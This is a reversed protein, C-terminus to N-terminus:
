KKTEVSKSPPPLPAQGLDGIVKELDADAQYMWCKVRDVWIVMQVIAQSIDLNDQKLRSVVWAPLQVVDDQSVPDVVAAQGRVLLEYVCDIYEYRKLNLAAAIEGLMTKGDLKEFVPNDVRVQAAPKLITRANIRLQDLHKRKELYALGDRIIKELPEDPSLSHPMQAADAEVFSFTGNLWLFLELLAVKGQDADTEAHVLKGSSVYLFATNAGQTFCVKGTLQGNRLLHLLSPLSVKSLEGALQM